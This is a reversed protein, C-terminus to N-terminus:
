TCINYASVEQSAFDCEFVITIDGADAFGGWLTVGIDAPPPVAVVLDAPQSTPMNPFFAAWKEYRMRKTKLVKLPVYPLIAPYDRYPWDDDSATPEISLLEVQHSTVPKYRMRCGSYRLGYLLRADFPRVSKLEAICGGSLTAIHHLPKPGHKVGSVKIDLPGGFYSFSHSTDRALYYATDRCFVTMIVSDAM